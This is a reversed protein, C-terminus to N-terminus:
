GVLLSDLLVALVEFFEDLFGFRPGEDKVDFQGVVGEKFRLILELVYNVVQILVILADLFM